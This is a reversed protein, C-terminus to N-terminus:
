LCVEKIQKQLEQLMSKKSKRAAPHCMSIIKGPYDSLIDRAVHYTGCTVILKPRIIEVEKQLLEKALDTQALKYYATGANSKGRVKNVNTFAVAGLATVAEEKIDALIEIPIEPSQLMLAWRGINYWMNPHKSVEGRDRIGKQSIDCLWERFLHGSQYDKDDWGNTERGIFLIGNETPYRATDIIGFTNIRCPAPEDFAASWANLFKPTHQAYLEDLLKNTNENQEQDIRATAM